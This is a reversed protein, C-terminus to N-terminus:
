LSELYAIQAIAALSILMSLVYYGSFAMVLALIALLLFSIIQLISM